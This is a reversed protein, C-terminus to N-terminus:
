GGHVEDEAIVFEQGLAGAQTDLVAFYGLELGGLHAFAFDQFRGAGGQKPLVADDDDTIHLPGALLDRLDEEVGAGVRHGADRENQDVRHRRLRQLFLLLRRLEDRRQALRGLHM